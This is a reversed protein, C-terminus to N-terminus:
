NGFFNQVKKEVKLIREEKDAGRRKKRTAFTESKIKVEL